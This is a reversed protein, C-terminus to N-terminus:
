GQGREGLPLPSGAWGGNKSQCIRRTTRGDNAALLPALTPHLHLNIKTKMRSKIQSDDVAPNGHLEIQSSVEHIVVFIKRHLLQAAPAAIGRRHWAARTRGARRPILGGAQERRRAEQAHLREGQGERARGRRQARDPGQHRALGDVELGAHDRLLRPQPDLRLDQPVRRAEASARQPRLLLAGGPARPPEAGGPVSALGLRGSDDDTKLALVSQGSGRDSM